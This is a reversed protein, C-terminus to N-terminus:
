PHQERWDIARALEVDQNQASSKAISQTSVPTRSAVYVDVICKIEAPADVPSFLM